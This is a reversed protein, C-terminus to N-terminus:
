QSYPSEYPRSDNYEGSDYHEDREYHNSDQLSDPNLTQALDTGVTITFDPFYHNDNGAKTKTEPHIEKLLSKLTVLGEKNCYHDEIHTITVPEEDETNGGNIVDYHYERLKDALTEAMGSVGSGNYVIIRLDEPRISESDRLVRRVIRYKEDEFPLIVSAGGINVQDDGTIVGRVMNERNFSKYVHALDIMELLLMDTELNKKIVEAINPIRGINAPKRLERVLAEIVQQQRRIRGWDGEEDHRFRAYGIADHGSLRQNGEKLHIHLNGWYDDYDMDKEVDIYVGGIADLLETAAQIKILVYHDIRIGLFDEITEKLQAVGAAKAEEYNDLSFDYVDLFALSYATNIKNEGYRDSIYVWTDRPISLVGLKRGYKDVRLLFITDTRSGKHHAIGQQDRNEDLGMCLIIKEDRSKFMLEGPRLGGQIGIIAPKVLNKGLDYPTKSDYYAMVVIYAIGSIFLAILGIVVLRFINIKRKGGTFIPKENDM